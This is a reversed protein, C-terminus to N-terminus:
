FWREKVRITDGPLVSQNLRIKQEGQEPDRTLFLVNKKARFTFGGALAITKLVTLGASYPYSGPNNVEGMVFIPQFTLVDVNVRPNKLHGDVLARVILAELEVTSRGAAAVGGILPMSIWGNASVKFEGSLDEEGFVTVRIEDGAALIGEERSIASPGPLDRPDFVLAIERWQEYSAESLGELPTCELVARQAAEAALRFDRSSLRSQEVVAPETRLSGDPFLGFQITVTLDQRNRPAGAPVWCDQIHRGISEVESPALPEVPTARQNDPKLPTFSLRQMKFGNGGRLERMRRLREALASEEQTTQKERPNPNSQSRREQRSSVVIDGGTSVPAISEGIERELSELLAAVAEQSPSSTRQPKHLPVETSEREDLPSGQPDAGRAIRRVRDAFTDSDATARRTPRIQPPLADGRSRLTMTSGDTTAPKVAFALLAIFEDIDEETFYGVESVKFAAKTEPFEAHIVTRINVVSAQHEFCAVYQPLMPGANEYEGNALADLFAVVKENTLWLFPLESCPGSRQIQESVEFLRKARAERDQAAAIPSVGFSIAAAIAAKALVAKM